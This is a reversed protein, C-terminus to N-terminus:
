FTAPEKNLRANNEVLELIQAELIWDVKEKFFLALLFSFFLFDNKNKNSDRQHLHVQQIDMKNQM